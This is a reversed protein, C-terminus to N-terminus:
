AAAQEGRAAALLRRARLWMELRQVAVLGLAFGLLWESLAQVGVPFLGPDAQAAIRVGQRVILLGFILALGVASAQSRLEHTQPDVEIRTLRGRWWGALAGLAFLGLMGALDLAGHPPFRWVYLAASALVFVPMIWLLEVRLRRAGRNRLLVLAGVAAMIVLSFYPNSQLGAQM